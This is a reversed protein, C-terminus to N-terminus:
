YTHYIVIINLESLVCCGHLVNGLVFIQNHNLKKQIEVCCIMIKWICLIELDIMETFWIELYLTNFWSCILSSGLDKSSVSLNYYFFLSLSDITM